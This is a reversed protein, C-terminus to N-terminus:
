FLWSFALGLLAVTGTLADGHGRMAANTATASAASVTGSIITTSATTTAVSGSSLSTSGTASAAAALKDLGATITVPLYTWAFLSDTSQVNTFTATPSGDDNGGLNTTTCDVPVAKSMDCHQSYYFETDETVLLDYVGSTADPPPTAMAWPGITITENYTGCDDSDTGPPCNLLITTATPNAGLIDAVLSQPDTNFLLLTTVSTTM